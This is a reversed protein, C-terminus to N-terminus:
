CFLRSRYELYMSRVLIQDRFIYLIYTCIYIYRAGSSFCFTPVQIYGTDAFKQRANAIGHRWRFDSSHLRPPPALAANSICAVRCLICHMIGPDRICIPKISTSLYILCSVAEHKCCARHTRVFVFNFFCFCPFIRGRWGFCVLDVAARGGRGVRSPICSFVDCANAWVRGSGHIGPTHFDAM